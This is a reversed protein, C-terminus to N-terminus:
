QGLKRVLTATGSILGLETGLQEAVWSVQLSDSSVPRLTVRGKSGGMGSWPFCGGEAEDPAEFEFAVEPFITRDAIQYRARYRGRLGAAMESMRLEIYEPPYLGSTKNLTAPAFLWDGALGPKVAVPPPPAPTELSFITPHHSVPLDIVPEQPEPISTESHPKAPEPRNADYHASRPSRRAVIPIEAKPSPQTVIAAAKTAAPASADPLRLFFFLLAGALGLGCGLWIASAPRRVPVAVRRTARFLANDYQQRAVPDLLTALIANLRKMQLEALTCASDDKCRDPHLLRALKKYSERIEDDPASRGVGLEEYYDMM